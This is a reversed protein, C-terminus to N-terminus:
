HENDVQDTNITMMHMDTNMKVYYLDIYQWSCHSRGFLSMFFSRIRAYDTNMGGGGGWMEGGGGVVEVM